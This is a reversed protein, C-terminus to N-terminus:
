RVQLMILGLFVTEFQSLKLYWAYSSQLSIFTIFSDVPHFNYQFASLLALASTSASASVHDFGALRSVVSGSGGFADCTGSLISAM